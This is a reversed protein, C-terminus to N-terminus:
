FSENVSTTSHVYKRADMAIKRIAQFFTESSKFKKKPLIIFESTELFQVLSGPSTFFFFVRNRLRMRCNQGFAMQQFKTSSKTNFKSSVM